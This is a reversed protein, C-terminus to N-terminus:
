RQLQEAVIGASVIVGGTYCEGFILPVAGGQKSVTIPGGLRFSAREDPAEPAKPQVSMMASTGQLAVALGTFFVRSATFIAGLGTPAAVAAVGASGGTMAGVGTAQGAAAAGLISGPLLFSVGILAVGLLVKMLGGREAGEVAPLIEIPADGALELRLGQEDLDDGGALVHWSGERIAQEFGPRTACLARVAEAPSAVALLFPGGFRAALDGHLIVQRM